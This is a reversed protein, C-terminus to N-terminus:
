VRVKMNSVGVKIGSNSCNHSHKLSSPDVNGGAGDRGKARHLVDSTLNSCFKRGYSSVGITVIRGFYCVGM